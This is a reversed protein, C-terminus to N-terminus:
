VIFDSHSVVGLALSFALIATKQTDRMAARYLASLGRAAMDHYGAAAYQACRAAERQQHKNM